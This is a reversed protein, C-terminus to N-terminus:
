GMAWSSPSIVAMARLWGFAPTETLATCAACIRPISSPRCHRRVWWIALSVTLQRREVAEAVPPENRAKPAGRGAAALGAIGRLMKRRHGLLVGLKELDRDTLDPLVDFDIGNEAFVQAYQGLGLADLWDGVEHTVAGM